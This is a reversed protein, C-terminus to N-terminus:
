LPLENASGSRIAPREAIINSLMGDARGCTFAPLSRRSATADSWRTFDRGSAWVMPSAPMWSKRALLRNPRTAGLPVGGATISFSAAAVM